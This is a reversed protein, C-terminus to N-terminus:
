FAAEMQRLLPKYDNTAPDHIWVNDCFSLTEKDSAYGVILTYFKCGTTKLSTIAKIQAAAPRAFVGDSIILLDASAYAETKMKQIAEGLAHSVDTGGSFSSKLFQVLEKIAYQFNTLEVTKVSTSFTILFAKRNESLAIKTIALALAKATLEPAGRMSSSTDVAIIIPGKTAPAEKTRSGQQETFTALQDVSVHEYSQLAKEVFRKIFVDETDPDALLAAEMPLMSNLDDSETIGVPDGGAAREISEPDGEQLFTFTEEELEAAARNCRGLLEAIETVQPNNLLTRAHKEVFDIDISSLIEESLDWWRGASVISGFLPFLLAQIERLRAVKLRLEELLQQQQAERHIGTLRFTEAVYASRWDETLEEKLAQQAAEDLVVPLAEMQEYHNRYDDYDFKYKPYAAVIIQRYANAHMREKFETCSLRALQKLLIREKSDLGTEAIITGAEKKDLLANWRAVMDDRLDMIRADHAARASREVAILEATYEQKRATPLVVSQDLIQQEQAAGAPTANFAEILAAEAELVPHEVAENELDTLLRIVESVLHEQVQPYQEVAEALLADEVFRRLADLRQPEILSIETEEIQWAALAKAIERRELASGITGYEIFNSLPAETLRM